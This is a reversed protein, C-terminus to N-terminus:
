GIEIGSGGRMAVRQVARNLRGVIAEPIDDETLQTIGISLSVALTLDAGFAVPDGDFADVIRGAIQEAEDTRTDELLMLIRDDEYHGVVCAAGAIGAIRTAVGKILATSDVESLDDRIVALRDIEVIITCSARRDTLQDCLRHLGSLVTAFDVICGPLTVEVGGDGICFEPMEEISDSLLSASRGLLYQVEHSASKLRDIREGFAAREEESLSASFQELETLLGAAGSLSGEVSEEVRGLASGLRAMVEDQEADFGPMLLRRYYDAQETTSMRRKEVVFPSLHDAISKDGDAFQFWLSYGEPSFDAAHSSMFQLTAKLTEKATEPSQEAHM